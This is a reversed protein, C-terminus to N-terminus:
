DKQDDQRQGPTQEPRAPDLPLDARGRQLGSGLRFQDVVKIGFCGLDLGQLGRHIDVGGHTPDFFPFDGIILLNPAVDQRTLRGHQAHDPQHRDHAVVGEVHDAIAAIELQPNWGLVTEHYAAVINLGVVDLLRRFVKARLM